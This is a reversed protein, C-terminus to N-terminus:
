KQLPWSETAQTYSALNTEKVKLKLSDFISFNLSAPPSRTLFCTDFPCYSCSSCVYAGVLWPVGPIIWHNEARTASEPSSQFIGSVWTGSGWLHSTPSSCRINPFRELPKNPAALISFWRSLHTQFIRCNMHIYAIQLIGMIVFDSPSRRVWVGNVGKESM